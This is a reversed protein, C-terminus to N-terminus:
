HPAKQYDYLKNNVILYHITKLLRNISAIVATKHTKGHPQERLKYYYDVIHSQYH